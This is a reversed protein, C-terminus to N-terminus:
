HAGRTLRYMVLHHVYDDDQVTGLLYDHGAEFLILEAPIELDALLRGDESLAQLRTVSDGPASLTLWLVNDADAILGTYLPLFQPMPLRQMLTRLQDRYNADNFVALAVDLARHYHQETTPRPATSVSLTATHRGGLDYVDLFASDATGVFLHQDTIAVQTIKGLTRNEALPLVGVVTLSDGYADGIWLTAKSRATVDSLRASGDEPQSFIAFRGSRTCSMVAASSQPVYERVIRGATDIVSMRGQMNDWVFVSDRGCQGLWATSVFEGPGRGQRGITKLLGGTSDFFRVGPAHQDAVAIVGNSLVTAGRPYLLAPQATASSDSIDLAPAPEISWPQTSSWSDDAGRACCALCLLIM